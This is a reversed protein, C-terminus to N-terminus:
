RSALGVGPTTAVSQIRVTFAQSVQGGTENGIITITASKASIYNGNGKIGFSMGSVTVSQAAENEGIQQPITAAALQAPAQTVVRIDAVTSDSLILTYGYNSNGGSFNITDPNLIVEEGNGITGISGGASIVPIRRTNKPLTVLKYRMMQTEDPLAEILPLNEIVVGYYATGLPHDPNWLDYDIEDDALAFQTIDFENRGRALLERGKRTLIADVTISTNNLYGM